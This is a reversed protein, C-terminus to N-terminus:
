FHPSLSFERLSIWYQLFFFFSSWVSWMIRLHWNQPNKQFAKVVHNVYSRNTWVLRGRVVQWTIEWSTLIYGYVLCVLNKSGQSKFELTSLWLFLHLLINRVLANFIIFVTICLTNSPASPFSCMDFSTRLPAMFTVESSLDSLHFCLVSALFCNFFLFCCTSICQLLFLSPLFLM